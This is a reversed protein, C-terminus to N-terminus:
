FSCVMAPLCYCFGRPIVSSHFRRHIAHRERDETIAGINMGATGQFVDASHQSILCRRNAIPTAKLNGNAEPKRRCGCGSTRGLWRGNLLQPAPQRFVVEAALGEIGEGEPVKMRLPHFLLDIKGVPRIGAPEVVGPGTAPDQSADKGSARVATERRKREAKLLGLL